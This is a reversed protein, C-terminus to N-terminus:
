IDFFHKTKLINKGTKRTLLNGCFRGIELVPLADRSGFVHGPNWPLWYLQGFCTGRIYKGSVTWLRQTAMKWSRLWRKQRWRPYVGHLAETNCNKFESATKQRWRPYVGHSEPYFRTSTWFYKEVPAYLPRVKHFGRLYWFHCPISNM